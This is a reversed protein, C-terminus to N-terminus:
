ISNLIDTAAAMAGDNYGKNYSDQQEEIKAQISKLLQIEQKLEDAREMLGIGYLYALETYAHDRRCQEEKLELESIREKLYELEEKM